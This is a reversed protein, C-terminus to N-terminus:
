KLLKRPLARRAHRELEDWADAFALELRAAEADERAHLRGLTFTGGAAGEAAIELLRLRTLVTDQHDGLVSQIQKASRELPATRAGLVPGAAECAYRLRKASKRVEHLAQAREAHDDTEAVRHVRKRLRRLDKAVLEPLVTAAKREARDTWPPDELLRKLSELVALYRDSGLTERAVRAAEKADARAAGALVRRAPELVLGPPEQDLLSHLRQQAVEADRVSGLTHSVWRIEDRLPDTVTRDVLKRYTALSTRIRRLAVRLDHIGEEERRRVARDATLLQEQQLALYAHLVRAVPKGPRPRKSVVSSPRAEDLVRGLKTGVVAPVAGVEAMLDDAAELLAPDGEVLEVEWERWSLLRPEDGPLTRHADVRDDAVEALVKDGQRLLVEIRRTRITAVPALSAGRTLALVLDRHAKPPLHRARALPLRVEERAGDGLPLKLHWGEDSGGTRRRLTVGYAALDLDPTDFYTAELELEAGTEVTDVGDLRTLDPLEAGVSPDYTRELEHHSTV